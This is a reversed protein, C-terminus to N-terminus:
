GMEKTRFPTVPSSPSGTQRHISNNAQPGQCWWLWQPDSHSLPALTCLMTNVLLSLAQTQCAGHLSQILLRSGGVDQVENKKDLDNLDNGTPEDAVQLQCFGV